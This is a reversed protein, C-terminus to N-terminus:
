SHPKPSLLWLQYSNATHYQTVKSLRHKQKKKPVSPIAIVSSQVFANVLTFHMLHRHITLMLSRGNSNQGDHCHYGFEIIPGSCVIGVRFMGKTDTSVSLANNIRFCFCHDLQELPYKMQQVNRIEWLLM